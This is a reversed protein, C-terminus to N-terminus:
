CCPLRRCRKPTSVGYVIVKYSASRFLYPSSPLLFHLCMLTLLFDTDFQHNMAVKSRITYTPSPLHLRIRLPPLVTVLSLVWYSTIHPVLAAPLLPLLPLFSAVYLFSLYIIMALRLLLFIFNPAPIPPIPPLSPAPLLPPM